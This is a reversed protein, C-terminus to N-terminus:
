TDLTSKEACTTKWGIRSCQDWSATTTDQTARQKDQAFVWLVCQRHPLGYIEIAACVYVIIASLLPPMYIQKFCM